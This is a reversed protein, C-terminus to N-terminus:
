PSSELRMAPIAQDMEEDNAASEEEEQEEAIESKLVVQSNPPNTKVVAEEPVSEMEETALATFECPEEVAPVSQLLRLEKLCRLVSNSLGREYRSLRDMSEDERDALMRALLEPADCTPLGALLESEAEALERRYSAAKERHQQAYKRSRSAYEEEDDIWTQLLKIREDRQAFEPNVASWQADVYLSKEAARVRKLRWCDSVIQEALEYEMLNRPNLSRMIGRRFLILHQPDEGPQTLDQAFIGHKIANRSSIAKGEASTPGRSKAGNLRNALLKQESSIQHNM